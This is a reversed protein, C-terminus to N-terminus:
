LSWTSLDEWIGAGLLLLVGALVVTVAPIVVRNRRAEQIRREDATYYYAQELASMDMAVSDVGGALSDRLHIHVENLPHYSSKRYKNGYNGKKKLYVKHNDTLPELVGTVRGNERDVTIGKLHKVANPFHVIVYKSTDELLVYVSDRSGQPVRHVMYYSSCSGMFMVVFGLM